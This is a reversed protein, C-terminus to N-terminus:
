YLHYINVVCKHSDINSVVLDLIVKNDYGVLWCTLDYYDIVVMELKTTDLNSYNQRNVSAIEQVKNVAALFQNNDLMM